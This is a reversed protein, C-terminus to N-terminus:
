FNTGGNYFLKNNSYVKDLRLEIIKNQKKMKRDLYTINLSLDNKKFREDLIIEDYNSDEMSYINIMSLIDDFYLLQDGKQYEYLSINGQRYMEVDSAVLSYEYSYARVDYYADDTINEISNIILIDKEPALVLFGEVVYQENKSVISYVFCNDYNNKFFMIGIISSFIVIILLVIMILKKIMKNKTLSTYYKLSDTTSVSITNKDIEIIREGSLLETTTVGLISSLDNLILINPACVGREWKSIMKDTTGIKNGLQEQTLNKEKRLSAIFKGIKVLDM